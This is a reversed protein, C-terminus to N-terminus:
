YAVYQVTMHFYRHNLNNLVLEDRRRVIIVYAYFVPPLPSLHGRGLIRSYPIKRAIIVYFDLM